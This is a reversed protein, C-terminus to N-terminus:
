LHMGQTSFGPSPTGSTKALIGLSPLSLNLSKPFISGEGGGHAYNLM